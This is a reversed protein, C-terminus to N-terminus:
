SLCKDIHGNLLANSNPLVDNCVPCRRQLKGRDGSKRDSHTFNISSQLWGANTKTPLGSKSRLGSGSGRICADVHLNQLANSAPLLENCMPCFAKKANTRTEATSVTNEEIGLLSIHDGQEDATSCPARLHGVHASGPFRSSSHPQLFRQIQPLESVDSFNTLGLGVLGLNFQKDSSVNIHRRLLSLASQAMFTSLAQRAKPNGQVVQRTYIAPSFPAARLGAQKWPSRLRFRVQFTRPQRYGYHLFDDTCRAILKTSLRDLETSLAPISTCSGVANECSITKPPGSNKVVSDDVGTCLQMIRTTNVKGGFVMELEVRRVDILALLQRVTEAEEGNQVAWHNLKLRLAHGIGPIKRLPLSALFAPAAESYLVTQQNPKHINAAIKSLLKNTSIGACVPLKTSAMIWTRLDSVIESGISLARGEECDASDGVLHGVVDHTSSQGVIHGHVEPTDAHEVSQGGVEGPEQNRGREDELAVLETLEIFIEDLGLRECPIVIESKAYPKLRQQLFASVAAMVERSAARFPTLDSGNIIRLHPFELMVTAVRGMKPVGMERAVYNTTVLMHKQTVGVPKDALHPRSRIAVSAYFCDMDLSVVVRTPARRRKM